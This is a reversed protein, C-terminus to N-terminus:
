LLIHLTQTTERGRESERPRAMLRRAEQKKHPKTPDTHSSASLLMEQYLQEFAPATTHYWWRCLGFTVDHRLSWILWSQTLRLLVKQARFHFKTPNFFYQTICHIRILHGKDHTLPCARLVVFAQQESINNQFNFSQVSQGAWVVHQRRQQWPRIFPEIKRSSTCM